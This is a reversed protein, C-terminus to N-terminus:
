RILAHDAIGTNLQVPQDAFQLFTLQVTLTLLSSLIKSRLPGCGQAKKKEGLLILLLNYNFAQEIFVFCAFLRM